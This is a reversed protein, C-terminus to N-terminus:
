ICPLFFFAVYGELITGDTGVTGDVMKPNM